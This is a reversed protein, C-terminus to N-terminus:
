NDLAGQAVWRRFVNKQDANLHVLQDPPAMSDGCASSKCRILMASQQTCALGRDNQCGHIKAILFSQAENMPTVIPMAPATKSAAKLATVIGSITAEDPAPKDLPPGLYLQAGPYLTNPPTQITTGHCTVTNCTNRLIPVIDTRFSVAPMTLDITAPEACTGCSMDGDDAPPTEESGCGPLLLGTVALLVVNAVIVRKLSMFVENPRSQVMM